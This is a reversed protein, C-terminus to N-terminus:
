NLRNLKSDPYPFLMLSYKISWTFWVVSLFSNLFFNLRFLFPQKIFVILISVVNFFIKRQHLILNWYFCFIGVLSWMIIYVFVCFINAVVRMCAHAPIGTALKKRISMLWNNAFNPQSCQKENWDWFKPSRNKMGMGMGLKLILFYQLKKRFYTTEICRNKTSPTLNVKFLSLYNLSFEFCSNACSSLSLMISFISSANWFEWNCEWSKPFSSAMEWEWIYPFLNENGNGIGFTLFLM